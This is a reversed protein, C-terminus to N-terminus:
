EFPSKIFQLGKFKSPKADARFLTTQSDGGGALFPGYLRRVDKLLMRHNLNVAGRFIDNDLATLFYDQFEQSSYAEFPNFDPATLDLGSRKNVTLLKSNNFWADIILEAPSVNMEKQAEADGIGEVIMKEAPIPWDRLEALLGAVEDKNDLMAYVAGWDEHNPINPCEVVLFRRNRAEARIIQTNNTTIIFDYYVRAHYAEKFKREIRQFDATIGSKFKAAQKPNGAFIGEELVILLLCEVEANFNSDLLHADSYVAKNERRMFSGVVKSWTDKGTGQGGGLCVAINVREGRAKRAVWEIMKNAVDQRGTALFLTHNKFWNWLNRPANARAEVQWGQFLNYCKNAVDFGPKNKPDFEICRLPTCGDRLLKGETIYEIKERTKGDDGKVQYLFCAPLHDLKKYETFGNKNAFLLRNPHIQRIFFKKCQDYFWSKSKVVGFNTSLFENIAEEPPLINFINFISQEKKEAEDQEYIVRMIYAEFHKSAERGASKWAAAMESYGLGSDGGLMFLMHEAKALDPLFDASHAGQLTSASKLFTDNREGEQAVRMNAFAREIARKAIPAAKDRNLANVSNEKKGASGIVLERTDHKAPLAPKTVSIPIFHKGGINYHEVEVGSPPLYFFRDLNGVKDDCGKIGSLETLGAIVGKYANSSGIWAELLAPEDPLCVIIRGKDKGENINRHSPYCLCEYGASIFWKRFDGYHEDADLVLLNSLVREYEVGAKRGAAYHPSFAASTNKDNTRKGFSPNEIASKVEALCAAYVPEQSGKNDVTNAYFKIAIM